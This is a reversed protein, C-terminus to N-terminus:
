ADDGSDAARHNQAWTLRRRLGDGDFKLGVIRTGLTRRRWFILVPWYMAAVLLWVLIAVSTTALVSGDCPSICEDANAADIAATAGVVLGALLIPIGILLIGFDIAM